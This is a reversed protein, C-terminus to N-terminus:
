KCGGEKPDGQYCYGTERVATDWNSCWGLYPRVLGPDYCKCNKCETPVRVGAAILYDALEEDTMARIRDANTKTDNQVYKQNFVDPKCPYFEGKLGKIIFDAAKIATNQFM